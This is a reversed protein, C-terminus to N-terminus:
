FLERQQLAQRLTYLDLQVSENEHICTYLLQEADQLRHGEVAAVVATLRQLQLTNRKLLADAFDTATM